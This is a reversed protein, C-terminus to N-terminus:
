FTKKSIELLFKEFKPLISIGSFLVMDLALTWELHLTAFFLHITSDMFNSLDFKLILPQRRKCGQDEKLGQKRLHGNFFLHSATETM